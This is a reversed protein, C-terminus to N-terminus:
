DSADKKLAEVQASIRADNEAMKRHLDALQQQTTNLRRLLIVAIGYAFLLLFLLLIWKM